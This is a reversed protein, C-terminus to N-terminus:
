KGDKMMRRAMALKEVLEMNKATSSVQKAFLPSTIVDLIKGQHDIVKDLADTLEGVHEQLEKIQKDQHNAHETLYSLREYLFQKESDAM